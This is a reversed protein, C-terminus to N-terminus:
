KPPAKSRLTEDLYDIIGLFKDRLAVFTEKIHVTSNTVQFYQRQSMCFNFLLRHCLNPSPHDDCTALTDCNVTDLEDRPYNKGLKVTGHHYKALFSMKSQDALDRLFDDLYQGYSEFYDFYPKLDIFTTVQYSSISFHINRIPEFIVPYKYQGTKMQTYQNLNDMPTFTRKNPSSENGRTGIELIPVPTLWVWLKRAAWM